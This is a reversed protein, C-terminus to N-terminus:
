GGFETDGVGGSNEVPGVTLDGLAGASEPEGSLCEVAIGVGDEVGHVALIVLLVELLEVSLNGVELTADCLELFLAGSGEEQVVVAAGSKGARSLGFADAEGDAASEQDYEHVVGCGGRRGRFPLRGADGLEAAQRLLGSSATGGQQGDQILKTTPADFLGSALLDENALLRAQHDDLLV